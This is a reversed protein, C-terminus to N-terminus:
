LVPEGQRHTCLRRISCHRLKIVPDPSRFNRIRGLRYQHIRYLCRQKRGTVLAVHSVSAAPRLADLLNRVMAGNVRINEAENAQRSWTTIFVADPKVEALSSALGAADNLDAAIPIVGEPAAPRRALGFVTWGERVLLAAVASGATQAKAVM